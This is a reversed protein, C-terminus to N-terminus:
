LPDIGEPLAAGIWGHIDESTQLTHVRERLVAIGQGRWCPAYIVYRLYDIVLSLQAPTPPQSTPEIRHNLYALIAASLEGSQENRWYLPTGFPPDYNKPMRTTPHLPSVKM